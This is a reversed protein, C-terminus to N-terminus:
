GEWSWRSSFLLRAVFPPLWPENKALHTGFIGRVMSLNRLLQLLSLVHLGPAVLHVADAVPGGKLWARIFRPVVVRSM